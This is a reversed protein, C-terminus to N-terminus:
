KDEWKYIYKTIWSHFNMSLMCGLGGGTGIIFALVISALLSETLFNEVFLGATFLEALALFWSTPLMLGRRRYIMNQQAVGKM